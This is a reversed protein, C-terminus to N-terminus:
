PPCVMSLFMAFTIEDVEGAVSASACQSPGHPTYSGADTRIAASAATEIVLFIMARVGGASLSAAAHASVVICEASVDSDLFLLCVEGLGLEENKPGVVKLWWM